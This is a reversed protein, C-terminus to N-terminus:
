AKETADEAAGQEHLWRLFRFAYLGTDHGDSWVIRLAYRGVYSADVMTVGESVNRPDLVREGSLEDVCHACPCVLRLARYPYHATVGDAWDM